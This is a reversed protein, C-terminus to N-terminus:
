TLNDISVLPETFRLERNGSRQSNKCLLADAAWSGECCSSSNALAGSVQCLNAPVMRSSSTSIGILVDAYGHQPGSEAIARHPDVFADINEDYGVTEAVFLEGVTDGDEAVALFTAEEADYTVSGQVFM